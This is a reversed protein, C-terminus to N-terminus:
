SLTVTDGIGPLGYTMGFDSRNLTGTASFGAVFKKNYPNVGSKNYTVDLTVPHTVGLLTLDGTLAGKNKGTKEVKTSKFIMKPFKAANLFDASKVAADWEPAGLDLSATEITVTVASDEAHKPDFTFGGTFKTFRGSPHSFGLHDATFSIQTHAPDFAYKDIKPKIPKAAAKDASSAAAPAAALLLCLFLSIFIKM